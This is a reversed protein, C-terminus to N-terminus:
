TSKQEQNSEIKDDELPMFLHIRPIVLCSSITNPYKEQELEKRDLCLFFFFIWIESSSMGLFVMIIPYRPFFLNMLGCQILNLNLNLDMDGLLMVLSSPDLLMFM